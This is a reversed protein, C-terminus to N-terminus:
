VGGACSAFLVLYLAQESFLNLEAPHRMNALRESLTFRQTYRGAVAAVVISTSALCQASRLLAAPTEGAKFTAAAAVKRVSAAAAEIM